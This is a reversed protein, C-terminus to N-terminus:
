IKRLKELLQEDIEIKTIDVESIQHYLVNLFYLFTKLMKHYKQEMRYFLIRNGTEIGFVNTLIILHNLILRNRQELDGDMRNMLRKLYKIRDLDEYFEELSGCQPNEYHQLAFMLFGEESLPNM